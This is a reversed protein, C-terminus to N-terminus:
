TKTVEEAGARLKPQIQLAKVIQPKGLVLRPLRDLNQWGELVALAQVSLAFREMRCDMM